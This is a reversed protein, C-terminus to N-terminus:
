LRAFLRATIVSLGLSAAMILAHWPEISTFSLTTAFASDSPMHTTLWMPGIVSLLALLLRYHINSNM